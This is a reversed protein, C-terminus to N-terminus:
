CRGWRVFSWVREDLYYAVVKTFVEAAAVSSAWMGSGTIIVTLVFTDVSGTARWSLAKAISRGHSEGLRGPTTAARSRLRATAAERLRSLLAAKQERVVVGMAVTEDSDRDILIFAGTARNDACADAAIQRDLDFVAHGIENTALQAAAISRCSDLDLM